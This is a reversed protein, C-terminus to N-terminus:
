AFLVSPRECNKLAWRVWYELWILRALDPDTGNNVLAHTKPDTPFFGPPKRGNSARRRALAQQIEELHAPELANVGPYKGRFLGSEESYFLKTLGVDECMASWTRYSPFRVNCRDTSGEDFSPADDECASEVTWYAEKDDDEPEVLVANGVMLNYGM